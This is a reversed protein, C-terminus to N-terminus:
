ACRGHPRNSIFRTLRFWGTFSSRRPGGRKTETLQNSSVCAQPFTESQILGILVPVMSREITPVVGPHATPGM